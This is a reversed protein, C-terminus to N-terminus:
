IAWVRNGCQPEECLAYALPRMVCVVSLSQKGPGYVLRDPVHGSCISASFHLMARWSGKAPRLLKWAKPCPQDANLHGAFQKSNVRRGRRGFFYIFINSARLVSACSAILKTCEDRCEIWNPTYYFSPRPLYLNHVMKAKCLSDLLVFGKARSQQISEVIHLNM